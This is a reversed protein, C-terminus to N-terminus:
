GEQGVAAQVKRGRKGRGTAEQGDDSGDADAEKEDSTEKEAEGGEVSLYYGEADKQPTAQTLGRAACFQNWAGQLQKQVRAFARFEPTAELEQQLQAHFSALGDIQGSERETLRHKVTGM